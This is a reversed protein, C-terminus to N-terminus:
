EVHDYDEPNICLNELQAFRLCANLVEVDDEFGIASHFDPEDDNSQTFYFIAGALWPQAQTPIAAWEEAVRLFTQYIATALRLNILRNRRHAAEVERLHLQAAFLLQPLPIAEAQSLSDSLRQSLLRPLGTPYLHLQHSPM